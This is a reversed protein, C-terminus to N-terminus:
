YLQPLLLSDLSIYLQTEEKLHADRFSGSHLDNNEKGMCQVSNEQTTLITVKWIARHWSLKTTEKQCLLHRSKRTKARVESYLQERCCFVLIYRSDVIFYLVLSSKKMFYLHISAKWLLLDLCKHSANPWTPPLKTYWQIKAITIAKLSLVHRWPTFICIAQTALTPAPVILYHCM